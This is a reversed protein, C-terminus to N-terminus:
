NILLLPFFIHEHSLFKDHYNIKITRSWVATNNLSHTMIRRYNTPLLSSSWMNFYNNETFELATTVLDSVWPHQEKNLVLLPSDGMIHRHLWLPLSNYSWCMWLRATSPPTHDAGCQLWKVQPFVWHQVPPLTPTMALKSLVSFKSWGPNLGKITWGM